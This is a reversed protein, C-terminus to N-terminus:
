RASFWRVFEDFDVKGSRDGDIESFGLGPDEGPEAAGLAEMLSAFEKRDLKGDGNSDFYDFNEKLEEDSIDSV